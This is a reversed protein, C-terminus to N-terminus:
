DYDPDEEYPNMNKFGESLRNGYSKAGSREDSVRAYPSRGQDFNRGLWTKADDSPEDGIGADIRTQLTQLGYAEIREQEEANNHVYAREIHAKEITAVRPTKLALVHRYTTAGSENESGTTVLVIDQSYTNIFHTVDIEGTKTCHQCSKKADGNLCIPCIEKQTVTKRTLILWEAFGNQVERTAEALSLRQRCRCKEPKTENLNQAFCAHV